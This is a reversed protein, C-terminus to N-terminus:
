SLRSCLEVNCMGHVFSLLCVVHHREVLKSKDASTDAFPGNISLRTSQFILPVMLNYSPLRTWTAEEPHACLGRPYNSLQVTPERHAQTCAASFDLNRWRSISKYLPRDFKWTQVSIEM